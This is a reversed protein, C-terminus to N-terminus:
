RSPEWDYPRIAGEDEAFSPDAYDEFRATGELIGSEVGLSAIEEFDKSNRTLGHLCIVPLRGEDDAAAYDRAYLTLGDRSRWRREQYASM